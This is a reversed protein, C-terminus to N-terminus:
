LVRIDEIELDPKIWLINGFNIEKWRENTLRESCVLISKEGKLSKSRLLAQTEQSLFELPGSDSPDRKLIYLSYYDKSISSYRFAYLNKGDSLLFNLGTYDKKAVEHIAKKIGGIANGCKVINQLIWYFYIESDTEGQIERKRIKPLLLRLYDKDVKGNHAFLWNKYRFPHSNREAPEAETGQRVHVIIIDSHVDKALIPLKECDLTSIGEKFIKAEEKEHWGIGWGDPNKMGLNKFPKDARSLSFDFDVPQNAVLGLLRCM